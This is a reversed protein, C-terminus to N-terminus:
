FPSEGVSGWQIEYGSLASGTGDHPGAAVDLMINDATFYLRDQIRASVSTVYGLASTPCALMSWVAM